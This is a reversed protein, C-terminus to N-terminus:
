KRTSNMTDLYGFWAPALLQPYSSRPSPCVEEKLILSISILSVSTTLDLQRYFKHPNNHRTTKFVTPNFVVVGM